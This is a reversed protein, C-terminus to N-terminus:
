PNHLISQSRIGQKRFRLEVRLGPHLNSLTLMANHHEAIAQVLALGLGSGGSTRASDLRVFPDLVKDIDHEPIGPGTDCVCLTAVGEKQQAILTIQTGKPSHVSANEILNVLLQQIMDMDAYIIVSDGTCTLTQNREEIAPLMFDRLKEVLVWLDVKKFRSQDSNAQIRSIRLVTEFVSNLAEVESLAAELEPLPDRQAEASDVAQMLAIQVHSLPTKLDHAIATATSKMGTVLRALRDLNQNMQVAIRDFQDNRQHVPLRAKLNGDSVQRLAQEMGELRRLSTRSAWLGFTLIILSLVVGFLTLWLTLREEAKDVIQGNRGVVLTLRDFQQVNLFYQGTLRGRTLTQLERREVGVFDPFVSIAGTLRIGNEDFLGAAHDPIQISRELDQLARVLGRRGKTQYIDQLLLTEARTQGVLESRLTNEVARVLVFGSLAYLAVFVVWVRIAAKFPEGTVLSALRM